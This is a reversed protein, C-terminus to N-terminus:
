PTVNVSGCGAPVMLLHDPVDDVCLPVPLNAGARRTGAIQRDVHRAFKQLLRMFNESRDSRVSRSDLSILQIRV